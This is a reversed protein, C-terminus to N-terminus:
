KGISDLTYGKGQRLKGRSVDILKLFRLEEALLKVSVIMLGPDNYGWSKSLLV